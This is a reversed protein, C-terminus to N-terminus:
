ASRQKEAAPTIETFQEEEMQMDDDLRFQNDQLAFPHSGDGTRRVRNYVVKEPVSKLDYALGLWACFDIIARTTNTGYNGLESAKYDWPFVHHYNHWGEGSTIFAVFRNESPNIGKDYPHTGWIHAASNVLWTANLTIVYRLISAVFFSTRLSEGWFYWPVLTPMAFCFIILLPIYFKRQYVVIPDQLLDSVDVTKGRRMVEPHKRCLLWGVHAFFFGRRANHPDADTESFKHHVRHDRSWVYIDNQLAITQGVAAIVRLPWKAKYCRHAWLRHAGGTIGFGGFIFLAYSWALTAWTVDTFCLYLGYLAALHLYIFVLVNRWVIVVPPQKGAESVALRGITDIKGLASEQDNNSEMQSGLVISGNSLEAPVRPNPFNKIAGM